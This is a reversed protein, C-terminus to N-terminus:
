FNVACSKIVNIGCSLKDVIISCGDPLLAHKGAFQAFKENQDWHMASVQRLPSGCSYELNSLHFNLLRQEAASLMVGSQKLFLRHMTTLATELAIDDTSKNRWYEVADLMANFHFDIRKDILTPVIEGDTEDLLPCEDNLTRFPIGAQICMVCFPNNIVGTILQGGLGFAVGLSFDDCIRGGIVDKAELVTVEAGLNQLHQAASLGSVGAGVVAVRLTEFRRMRCHPPIHLIGYNVVGKHTLFTLIRQAERVVLVRVLGRCILFRECRKPTLWENPNINWLAIITNRIGLYISQEKSYEPFELIEDTEMIDPRICMAKGDDLPCYFPQM